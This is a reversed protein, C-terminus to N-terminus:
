EIGNADTLTYVDSTPAQTSVGTTGGYTMMQNSTPDYESSHFRRVQGATQQSWSAPGAQGNAGSLVWVDGIVNTGDYGGYITMLNNAGDYTATHGSRPTPGSNSANLPTWAPTGGSGNAHSLLWIDGFPEGGADGGFVVLTNTTSDYIASSAERATPPTGTPALQSWSPQGGQDNANSLIWVDNYYTSACNFGGFIIITNTSGDYASAQLARAAPATATSISVWNPTAGQNDAEELVYYDNACPAPFGTAGGFVMVRNSASDYLGTHGFRGGPRSGNTTVTTWQLNTSGLVTSQQWYDNFDINSSAHQGAFVFMDNITSLYFASQGYRVPPGGLVWKQDSSLGNAGSLTFAHDDTQLKDETSTGGFVYMNDASQDYVASHYALSPATGSTAIQTWSPTGAEGDASALVWTDTLTTGGSIGGFIILRDNASDYVATQGTRASPATGSPTLQTWAPTGGSGNAHSLAWVDGFPSGGADGGYMILINNASDYVVSASERAQPSTGSPALQTWASAGEGNANSLVWVDSFFGTSCNNGGFLMMSKTNADYAAGAYIRAAPATSTTLASWGPTGSQGNAGSLIWADNLCTSSGSDGGFITMRNSASDYTAVHGHRGEPATGSPAEGTFSDDQTSATVGLWVDNLDAGTTSQGGFIIMQQSVSDYVASHSSRGPPGHLTWAQNGSPQTVTLVTSGSLGLTATITATGAGVSTALGQSGSVNSITAVKATSSTWTVSTTINQMSGDTYTGTATFQENTGLVITPSESTVGISVLTANSVTLNTLVNLLGSTAMIISSGVAVSTALGQSGAANSITAVKPTGSSWTVSTTINQTSGDSFTGTATFQQTTGLPITPAVPSITMSVLTAASVTLMTSGSITGSAATISSAGAAVSTALGQSGATNSITAVKPTASSWTVSTTINQTSGDSYTGTATFQQNTGLAITPSTPTVAISVLPAANVTLSTSGSVSGMTATITSSGVGVSTALGQSGAANSITAVKPASSSWTVSTTVIQNSGDSYTGTAVFQQTARVGVIAPAPPTVVITVLTPIVNSVTLATSGSVTGSTATITTTGMGTATALGQSGANNSVTAVAADSSSWTAM